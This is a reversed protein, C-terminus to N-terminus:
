EPRHAHRRSALAIRELDLKMATAPPASGSRVPHGNRMPVRGGGDSLGIRRRHLSCEGNACWGRPSYRGGVDWVPVGAAVVRGPVRARTLSRGVSTPIIYM